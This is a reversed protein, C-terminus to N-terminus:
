RLAIIDARSALNRMFVETVMTKVKYAAGPKETVVGGDAEVYGDMTHRVVRNGSSFADYNATPEARESRVSLLVVASRVREPGITFSGESACSLNDLDAMIGASDNVDFPYLYASAGLLFGQSFNTASANNINTTTNYHPDLWVNTGTITVPRFWVQFNTVYSAIVRRTSPDVGSSNPLTAAIEAATSKDTATCTSDIGGEGDYDVFYRVLDNRPGEPTSVTEVFYLATQSGAVTVPGSIDGIFGISVSLDDQAVNIECRGSSSTDPGDVSIVKADLFKRDSLIIHVFGFPPQFQEVCETQSVNENSNIFITTTGGVQPIFASYERGGYFNGSLLLADNGSEGRNLHVVARRFQASSSANNSALYKYDNLSNPTTFMGTQRLDHLLNSVGMRTRQTAETEMRQMDSQEGLHRTIFYLPSVLIIGAMLAIMMEILTFGTPKKTNTM